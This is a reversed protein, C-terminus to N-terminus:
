EKMKLTKRYSSIACGYWLRMSLKTLGRSSSDSPYNVIIILKVVAVLKGTRLFTWLVIPSFSTMICIETVDCCWLRSFWRLCCHRLSQNPSLKWWKGLIIGSLIVIVYALNQRDKKQEFISFNNISCSVFSTKVKCDTSHRRLAQRRQHKWPCRCASHYDKFMNQFVNLGNRHRWLSWSPTEFWWSWWQKSLQKNPRLDFFADFSQTVPRQTLFEGPVPSNGACIALLASFAEMQHRWWPNSSLRIVLM